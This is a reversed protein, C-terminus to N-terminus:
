LTARLSDKTSQDFLHVAGPEVALGVRDGPKVRTRGHMVMVIQANGAKVLLETEAGTPEVVIVEAQVPANEGALSLHEPRIGYVVPQGHM